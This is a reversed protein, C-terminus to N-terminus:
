SGHAPGPTRVHRWIGGSLRLNEPAGGLYSRLNALYAERWRDAHSDADEGAIADPLREIVFNIHGDHWRPAVFMSPISLRHAMRAAFSSFTVEQGEFPVRPAALNLAGDVAIVVAHGGHLSSLVQRAVETGTQDSTSILSRAYTTRAVSPTSALWKAPINLLELALPGAYMPGIHASALIVGRSSDVEALKREVESLDSLRVMAEHALEDRCELWDLIYHDALCGWRAAREWEARDNGRQDRLQWAWEMRAAPIDVSDVEGWLQRLGTEFDEPLQKARRAVFSDFLDAAEAHQGAQSLAGAAYRHWRHSGSQMDLLHRFERAAEAYRGNQKHARALLARANTLRPQRKCAEALHTSAEATRGLRMLAEGLLARCNGDNSNLRVAEALHDAGRELRDARDSALYAQGLFQRLRTGDSGGAICREGAAIAAKPNGAESHARVAAQIVEADGPWQMQATKAISVAEEIRGARILALLAVSALRADDAAEAGLSRAHEAAREVQGHQLLLQLFAAHGPLDTPHLDLVLRADRLAEDYRRCRGLLSARLRLEEIPSTNAAVLADLITIAADVRKDQVLWAVVHRRLALRASPLAAVEPTVLNLGSSVRGSRILAIAYHLRNEPDQKEDQDFGREYCACADTWRGQRLMAEMESANFRAATQSM